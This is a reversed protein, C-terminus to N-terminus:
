DDISTYFFAFSQRSGNVELLSIQAAPSFIRGMPWITLQLPLTRMILWDFKLIWSEPTSLHKFFFILNNSIKERIKDKWNWSTLLIVKEINCTKQSPSSSAGIKKKQPVRRLAYRATILKGDANQKTKSQIKKKKSKAKQLTHFYLVWM